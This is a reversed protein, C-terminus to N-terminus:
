RYVVLDANNALFYVSGNAVVPPVSVGDPMEVTGLLNGSYPSLAWAEGHSGALILRDSAVLPGTWVIPSDQDDQDEYRPLGQM